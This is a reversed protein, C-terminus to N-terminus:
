QVSGLDGEMRQSIETAVAEAMVGQQLAQLSAVRVALEDTVKATETRQM